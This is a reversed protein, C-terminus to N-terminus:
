QLVLADIVPCKPALGTTSANAACKMAMDALTTELKQLDTIKARISGLHKQTLAHVQACSPEGDEIGLLAGIDALSFGLERGRLIFKLRTQESLGYLRHGSLTREPAPMLGINEYYRVTEINCKVLRALQGRKIPARSNTIVM